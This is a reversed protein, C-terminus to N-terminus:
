KRAKRANAYGRAYMMTCYDVLEKRTVAQVTQPVFKEAAKRARDIPSRTRTNM